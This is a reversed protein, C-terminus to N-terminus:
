DQNDLGHKHEWATQCIHHPYNKGCGQCLEVKIKGGFMCDPWSCEQPILLKDEGFENDDCSWMKQRTGNVKVRWM